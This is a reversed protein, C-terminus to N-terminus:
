YSSTGANGRGRMESRIVPAGFFSLIGQGDIAMVTHLTQTQTLRIHQLPFALCLRRMYATCAVCKLAALDM